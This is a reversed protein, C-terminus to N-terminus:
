MKCIIPKSVASIACKEHLDIGKILRACFPLTSFPFDACGRYSLKLCLIAGAACSIKEKLIESNAAIITERFEDEGLASKKILAGIAAADM